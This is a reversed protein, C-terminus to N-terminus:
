IVDWRVLDRVIGALREAFFQTPKILFSDIGTATEMRPACEADVLVVPLVMMGLMLASSMLEKLDDDFKTRPYIQEVDLKYLRLAHGLTQHYHDVLRQYHERRFEEDTATVVFYILDSAPCGTHVTQYDIPLVELENNQRRYLLNSPRYDGHVLVPLGRPTKFDIYMQRVDRQLFKVVKERLEEDILAVADEVVKAWMERQTEDDDVMEFKFQDSFKRYEEPDEKELIISLAHYKALSEVSKSAYDWDVSKFRDYSRYGATILNELVVTERGKKLNGGFYKPFVFRHEDPVQYKEQLSDWIKILKTYIIHETRFLCDANMQARIQENISGVKAFVDIKDKGQSTITALYLKSTYNAGGSNIPDIDIHPDDYHQDRAIDRLVEALTQDAHAMM